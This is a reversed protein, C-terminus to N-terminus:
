EAVNTASPTTASAANPTKARNMGSVRRSAAAPTSEASPLSGEGAPLGEPQVSAVPRPTEAFTRKDSFASPRAMKMLLRKLIRAILVPLDVLGPTLDDRAFAAFTATRKLSVVYEGLRLAGGAFQQAASVIDRSAHIWAVGARGHSRPTPEGHALRWQIWPFDVNAAGGLGIWTWPRPNVDLLKYRGDRVDYKFEAEVLGSFRLFALFRSAAEEVAAQEITEVFTSTFGFNVPYQRQRRAVLSAVPAGNDWVAAYSFQADGAGPILEQIVIADPGVLAAAEDYRSLLAARDDVRWAKAMTFDNRGARYAPKLIAPFSCELAAVEDRNRPIRSWPCDVGVTVAHQHTLRKDCAFRAVAWPPTTVRFAESLIAHHQAVFRVEEDGGAFLAWRDLGHRRALDLLWGVADKDGPGAWNFSRGVYRSYKAIPHDDGVFWVPVGHRGLSRAVALSGHAGGLIVAGGASANSTL